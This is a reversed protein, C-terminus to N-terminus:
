NYIKALEDMGAQYIGSVLEFAETDTVGNAQFRSRWVVESKKGRSKVEVVGEYDQIPLPASIVIYRYSHEAEKAELLQDFIVGGDGLYLARVDGMQRSEKVAPHWREIGNFSGVLAWVASPKADLVVSKKVEIWESAFASSAMCVAAVAALVLKKM